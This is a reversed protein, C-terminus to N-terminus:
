VVRSAMICWMKGAYVAEKTVEKVGGAKLNVDTRILSNGKYCLGFLTLSVARPPSTISRNQWFYM